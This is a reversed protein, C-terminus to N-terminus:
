WNVDNVNFCKNDEDFSLDSLIDIMEEDQPHLSIISESASVDSFEYKHLQNDKKKKKHKEAFEYLDFDVKPDPIPEVPIIIKPKKVKKKKLKPTRAKPTIFDKEDKKGNILKNSPTLKIEEPKSFFAQLPPPSVADMPKEKLEGSSSHYKKARAKLKTKYKSDISPFTPLFFDTQCAVNKSLPCAPVLTEAQCAAESTVISRSIKTPTVAAQSAYTPKKNQTAIRRAEKFSICKTAKLRQIEKEQM